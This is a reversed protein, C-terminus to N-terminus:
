YNPLRKRLEAALTAADLFSKIQEWKAGQADYEAAREHSRQEAKFLGFRVVAVEEPSLTLTTYTRPESM